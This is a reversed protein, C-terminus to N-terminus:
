RAPVSQGMLIGRSPFRLECAPTNQPARQLRKDCMGPHAPNARDNMRVIRVGECRYGLVEINFGRHMATGCALIRNAQSQLLQHPCGLRVINQDMVARAGEDSVVQHVTDDACQPCGITGHGSDVYM